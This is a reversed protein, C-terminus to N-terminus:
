QVRGEPKRGSTVGIVPGTCVAAVAVVSDYPNKKLGLQSTADLATVLPDYLTFISVATGALAPHSKIKMCQGEGTVDNVYLYGEKYYNAAVALNTTSTVSVAKAGIAAVAGCVVDDDAEAHQRAATQLPTGLVTNAVAGNLCYRWARDGRVLKTGLPFLQTSYQAYPDPPDGDTLLDAMSGVEPLFLVSGEENM